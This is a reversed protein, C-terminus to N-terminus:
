CFPIDCYRACGVIWSTHELLVLPHIYQTSHIIGGFASGYRVSYCQSWVTWHQCNHVSSYGCTTLPIGICSVMNLLLVYRLSLEIAVMVMATIMVITLIFLSLKMMRHRILYLDAILGFLPVLLLSVRIGFNISIIQPTYSVTNFLCSPTDLAMLTHIIVSSVIILLAEKKAM